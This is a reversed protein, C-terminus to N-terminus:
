RMYNSSIRSNRKESINQLYDKIWLSNSRKLLWYDFINRKVFHYDPKFLNDLVLMNALTPVKLLATLGDKTRYFSNDRKFYTVINEYLYYGESVGTDCLESIEDETANFLNNLSVELYKQGEKWNVEVLKTYLDEKQSYPLALVPYLVINKGDQKVLSFDVSLNVHNIEYQMYEEYNLITNHFAPCSNKAVDKGLIKAMYMQQQTLTLFYLQRNSLDTDATDEVVSAISRSRKIENIDNLYFQPKRYEEQEINIREVGSVKILHNESACSAILISLLVLVQLRM